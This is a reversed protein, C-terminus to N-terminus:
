TQETYLLITYWWWKCYKESQDMREEAESERVPKDKDRTARSTETGVSCSSATLFSAADSWQGSSNASHITRIWKLQLSQCRNLCSIQSSYCIHVLDAEFWAMFATIIVLKLYLINRQSQLSHLRHLKLRPIWWGDYMSKGGRNQSATFDASIQM